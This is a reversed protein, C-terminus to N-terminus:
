ETGNIFNATNAAKSLIKKRGEPTVIFRLFKKLSEVGGSKDGIPMLWGCDHKRIRLAQAGINMSLVPYGSLIAESATYCYTEYWNSLTAVIATEYKALLESTRRNDYKGAIMIGERSGVNKVDDRYEGLVILEIPLDNERIFQNAILLYAEGKERRMFGPFVIRLRARSAFEARFTRSLLLSLKHPQVEINLAPQYKKVLNAAYTSPAYVHEAKSLLRKFADRWREITAGKVYKNLYHQCFKDTASEGCHRCLCSLMYNPCVCLYDHIFYEYPLGCTAVWRTIFAIDFTVFNNVFLRTIGLRKVEKNLAAADFAISIKEEPKRYNRIVFHRDAADAQTLVYVGKGDYEEKVRYDLFVNSGGGEWWTTLILINQPKLLAALRQAEKRYDYLYFRDLVAIPDANPTALAKFFEARRLDAPFSTLLCPNHEVAKSLDTRRRILQTENILRAGKDSHILVLSTGRNDYMEPQVQRVGWFDALTLDSIRAVGKFHCASCSPRLTLGLGFGQGFLDTNMESSYLGCDEFIIKFLPREWGNHKDRFTIASISHGRGRYDIYKKWLVPPTIGKCATDVLTLRDHERGLFNKLGAVQCPTGVFMVERDSELAAKVQRYVDGIRSQVYKSGRLRNLGDIGDVAIHVVNWEPDFAAGFIIGGRKLILEAIATFAGGSSSKRRVSWDRNVAAIAVPAKSPRAPANLVPCTLDCRGCEVCKSKDIRPYYFGEADATMEIAGKPCVNACAECGACDARRAAIMDEIKM